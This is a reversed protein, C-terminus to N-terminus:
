YSQAVPEIENEHNTRHGAYEDIEEAVLGYPCYNDQHCHDELNYLGGYSKQMLSFICVKNEAILPTGEAKKV